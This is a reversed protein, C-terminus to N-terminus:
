FPLSQSLSHRLERLPATKPNQPANSLLTQVADRDRAALAARLAVTFARETPRNQLNHRALTLALAPDQGPGAYFESAHDWFAEPHRQLLDQYLGHARARWQESERGQLYDALKASPEPDLTQLAVKKLRAIASNRHGNEVEIEAYHVQATVFDPNIRVAEQYHTQAAHVDGAKEGATLGRQFHLWSLAIPSPDKYNDIAEQYWIDAEEYLGEAALATAHDSLIWWSSVREVRAERIRRIEPLNDERALDVTEQLADSKGPLSLAEDFRHLHVLVDARSPSQESLDLAQSYDDYTGYIKARLLLRDLLARTLAPNNPQKELANELGEISAGLNNRTTSTQAPASQPASPSQDEPACGVLLAGAIALALLSTCFRM